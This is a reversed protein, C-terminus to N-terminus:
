SLQLERKDVVVDQFSHNLEDEYRSTLDADDAPVVLAFEAFVKLKIGGDHMAIKDVGLRQMQRVIRRIGKIKFGVLRDDDTSLFITLIPNFRKAYSQVDEAYFFLTDSERAYYPKPEFEGPAELGQRLFEYYEGLGTAM